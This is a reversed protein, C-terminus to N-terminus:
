RPDAGSIESSIPPIRGCPMSVSSVSSGCCRAPLIRMRAVDPSVRSASRFSTGVNLSLPTFRAASPQFAKKAGAAIGCALTSRSPASMAAMKRSGAM